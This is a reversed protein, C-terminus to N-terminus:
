LPRGVRELRYFIMSVSRKNAILRFSHQFCSLHSLKWIETHFGMHTCKFIPCAWTFYTFCCTFAMSSVFNSDETSPLCSGKDLAEQVTKESETDLASTAEDLLLIKPNRVLARAIAVRQKQGGSLQAGREGVLTEYKDPLNMIFDHANAAKAAERIEEDTVNQRGYRINEAITTAFLVPEQSVVGVQERLWRVNLKTIEYGDLLVLGREPDFFRLILQVVTSKGCGSPGVLAMTQGCRVRLSFNHLVEIDPRAPYSFHVNKLEIDGEVEDGAPTVGEDSLPDILSQRDEIAFVRVAAGRAVSVAQWNPGAYGLSFAGFLVSFIAALVDGGTSLEKYVLFGAFWFTFGFAGFIIVYLAAMSIGHSLAKKNGLDRAKEIGVKYREAEKDEGGFAVVTRICSIVEQAVSGAQAYAEQEEGTLSSVLKAELLGLVALIPTLGLIFLSLRWDSIFGVILGGFFVTMWTLFSGIKDGIGQSVKELDGAMRTALQGADNTEFWAMEQRMIARFLSERMRRTQREASALLAAVYVYSAVLTGFGIIAFRLSVTALADEVKSPDLFDTSCTSNVRKTVCSTTENGSLTVNSNTFCIFGNLLDGFVLAVGPMAMGSAIAAVVGIAVLLVDMGDAYRFLQLFSVKPEKEKEKKKSKETTTTDLAEDYSAYCDEKETTWTTSAKEELQSAM